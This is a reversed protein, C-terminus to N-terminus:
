WQSKINLTFDEYVDTNAWAMMVADALNPSKVGKSKMEQKSMLTIRSGNEGPKRKIATLEQRLRKFTDTDIDTSISICRDPDIWQGNVVANYTNQFRDRLFCYSQSRLNRFIDKNRRVREMPTNANPDYPPYPDEPHQVKAGGHFPVSTTRYEAENRDLNIKMAVGMGDADYVMQQSKTDFSQQYAKLIAEPLEGNSWDELSELLFGHRTCLAKNDGTDAPDFSTVRAGLPEWKLKEHAGLASNVWIPQILADEFNTNPEGM